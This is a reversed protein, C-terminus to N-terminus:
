IRAHEFGRSFSRLILSRRLLISEGNEDLVELTAYVREIIKGLAEMDDAAVTIRMCIQKQTGLADEAIEEGEQYWQTVAVTEKYGRIEELGIIKNIKAPRALISM